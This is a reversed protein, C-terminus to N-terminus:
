SLDGATNFNELEADFMLQAHKYRSNKVNAAPISPSWRTETTNTVYHVVGTAADLYPETSTITRTGQTYNIGDAKRQPNKNKFTIHPRIRFDTVAAAAVHVGSTVEQGDPTFVQATGGTVSLSTANDLISLGTIAM